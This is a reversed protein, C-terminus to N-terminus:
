QPHVGAWAGQRCKLAEDRELAEGGDPEGMEVGAMGGVQQTSSVGKGKASQGPGLGQRHEGRSAAGPPQCAVEGLGSSSEQVLREDKVVQVVSVLCVDVSEPQGAGGDDVVDLRVGEADIVRSRTDRVGAVTLRATDQFGESHPAVHKQALRSVGAYRLVRVQPSVVRGFLGRVELVSDADTFQDQRLHILEARPTGCSTCTGERVGRLVEGHAKAM